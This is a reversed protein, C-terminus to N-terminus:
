LLEHKISGFTEHSKALYIELNFTSITEAYPPDNHIHQILLGSSAITPPGGATPNPPSQTVSM